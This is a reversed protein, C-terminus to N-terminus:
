HTERGMRGAPRTRIPFELQDEHADLDIFLDYIENVVEAPRRNPRDMKNVVVIPKLNLLLAKQLVFRTQPM